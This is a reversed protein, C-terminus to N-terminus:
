INGKAKEKAHRKHLLDILGKVGKEKIIGGFQNQYDKILSDGDFSVDFLKWQKKVKHWHYTAITEFDDEELLAEMEVDAKNGNIKAAGITIKSENLFAGSDPYAVMRILDELMKQFKKLEGKKFAKKNKKVTNITLTHYDFFADLVKFAGKNHKRDAASLKGEEPAAKVNKFAEILADTQTKPDGKAFASTACFCFLLTLSYKIYM